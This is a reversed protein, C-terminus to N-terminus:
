AEVDSFPVPDISGIANEDGADSKLAGDVVRSTKPYTMNRRSGCDQKVKYHETPDDTMRLSGLGSQTKKKEKQRTGLKTLILDMRSYIADSGYKDSDSHTISPRYGMRFDRSGDASAAGFM